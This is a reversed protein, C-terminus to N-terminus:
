LTINDMVSQLLHRRSHEDDNNTLLYLMQVTECLRDWETKIDSNRSFHMALSMKLEDCTDAWKVKTNELNRWIEIRDTENVLPEDYVLEYRNLASMFESLPDIIQEALSFKLDLERENVQWSSTLQPILISTVIAGATVAGASSVAM